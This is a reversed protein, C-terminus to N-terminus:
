KLSDYMNWSEESNDLFKDTTVKLNSFANLLVKKSEDENQIKSIMKNVYVAYNNKIFAIGEIAVTDIDKIEDVNVNTYFKYYGYNVNETNTIEIEKKFTMGETTQYNKEWKYYELLKEDDTEKKMKNKSLFSSLEVQGYILMTGDDCSILISNGFDSYNTADSPLDIFFSIGSEFQTCLITKEETKLAFITNEAFAATLAFCFLIVFIFKKM